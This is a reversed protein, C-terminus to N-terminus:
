SFIEKYKTNIQQKIFNYKGGGEMFLDNQNIGVIIDDECGLCLEKIFILNIILNYFNIYSSCMLIIDYKLM